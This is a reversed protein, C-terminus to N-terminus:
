DYIPCFAGMGLCFEGPDNFRRHQDLSAMTAMEAESLAFGELDLNQALRAPSRSKPILSIGRQIGWRLVVQAPSVGHAAAIKGVAANDLASDAPTAMGLEVYGAAGLPSFGTVAIANERCFRVLKEQQLYPHLEVQLVAPPTTAYSLVDRLAATNLNCVGISRALGKAHLEEMARWTEEYPVKVLEMKPAAADPDHIWEPPYRTEFPVFKLAIPFHVLYLDVYDLGLDSLSRRCAPEVHEKAHYTNWLKSTVWLEDRTVLGKSIARAIGEGVEVENGYDSACDLHRYGLEIAKVITDSTVDKPIKWCGLGVAPMRAGTCLTLPTVTTRAAPLRWRGRETGGVDTVVLSGDGDLKPWFPSLHRHCSMLYKESPFADWAHDNRVYAIATVATGDAVLVATVEERRYHGEHGFPDMGDAIGEHRDLLALEHASLMTVTGVCRHDASAKIISAIGGGDWKRSIGCFIRRYSPMFAAEATLADNQCRERLQAVGNSGYSFVAHREGTRQRKADEAM